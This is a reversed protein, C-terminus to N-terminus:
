SNSYCSQANPKYKPLWNLCKPIVNQKPGSTGITLVKPWKLCHSLHVHGVSPKWQKPTSFERPEYQENGM